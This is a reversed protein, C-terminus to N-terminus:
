GFKWEQKKRCNIPSERDLFPSIDTLRPSELHDFVQGVHEKMIRRTPFPRSNPHANCHYSDHSLTKDKVLPWIVNALFTQDAIYHSKDSWAKIKGKMDPIAGRVAGWMGANFRYNHNPHDRMSHVAFGSQIWEEIAAAERPNLRSDTDRVLFREVTEDDAVLFRWFTGSYAQKSHDERASMDVLESGMERLTALIDQPVSQDHYFRCIWGPLIYKVLEANRIAGIVYKPNNGYLSYSVVNKKKTQDLAVISPQPIKQTVENSLVDNNVNQEKPQSPVSPHYTDVSNINSSNNHSKFIVFSLSLLTFVVVMLWTFKKM